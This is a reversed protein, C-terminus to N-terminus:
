NLMPNRDNQKRAVCRQQNKVRTSAQLRTVRHALVKDTTTPEAARHDANRKERRKRAGITVNPM